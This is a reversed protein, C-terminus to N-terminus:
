ISKPEETYIDYDEYVRGAKSKKEGTFVIKLNTGDIIGGLKNRLVTKGWVLVEKGNHKFLFDFGGQQSEIKGLLTAIFEEDKVFEHVDREIKKWETEM